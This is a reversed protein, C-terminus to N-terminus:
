RKRGRMERMRFFRMLPGAVADRRATQPIEFDLLDVHADRLARATHASWAARRVSHGERVSRSSWDALVEGDGEAARLRELGARPADLAPDLLRIAVTDHRRACLAMAREWGECLFDSVVFVTAHRRVLRSAAQLAPALDTRAGAGRMALCDRVLELAHRKGKRPPVWADIGDSFALLGVRDNNRVAALALVACIRAAFRRPSWVRGGADMSASLDLLFLMTLEREDVYKRVYPRGTRATVSWDISRRPDGPVYERVEDFEIGSGRFVSRYGGALAGTVLRRSQVEIQRVEQLLGALDLDADSAAM